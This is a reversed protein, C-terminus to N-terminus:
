FLILFYHLVTITKSPSDNSSFFCLCAKIQKDDSVSDNVDDDDDDEIKDRYFNWLSGSTESYNHNYELLSLM